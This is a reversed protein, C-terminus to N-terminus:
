VTMGETTLRLTFVAEWGEGNFATKPSIYKKATLVARDVVGGLTPDEALAKGIVAGYAYANRESDPGEPIVLRITLSYADLRVIREKEARECESLRLVPAVAGVGAPAASWRDSFELPAIQFESEGLLENVRGTLLIKVANTIGEEIYLDRNDSM